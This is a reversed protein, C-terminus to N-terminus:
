AIIKIKGTEEYVREAFDQIEEISSFDDINTEILSELEEPIEINFEKLEKLISELTDKSNVIDQRCSEAYNINHKLCFYEGINIIFIAEEGMLRIKKSEMLYAREMKETQNIIKRTEVHREWSNSPYKKNFKYTEYCAQVWYIPQKIIYSVKGKIYTIIQWRYLKSQLFMKLRMFYIGGYFKRILLQHVQV